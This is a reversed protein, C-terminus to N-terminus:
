RSFVREAVASMAAIAAADFAILTLNPFETEHVKWWPGYDADVVNEIPQELYCELEDKTNAVPGFQPTPEPDPEVRFRVTAVPRVV